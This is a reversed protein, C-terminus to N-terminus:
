RHPTTTASPIIAARHAQLFERMGTPVRQPLARLLTRLDSDRVEMEGKATGRDIGAFLRAMGPSAGCETWAAELQDPPVELADIRVGLVQSALAALAHADLAEEGAISLVRRGEFGDALAAAAAAACDSRAVCTMRGRGPACPLRHSACALPLTALLLEAYFANRLISFGATGEHLLQETAAHDAAIPGPQAAGATAFSTYVVHLVGCRQAAEIANRHQTVRRPPADVTNTSVLLMRSAGEFAADLSAPEDFDAFRVSVGRAALDALRDPHRTTAILPVEPRHLLLLEVAQRALAGSAGSVLLAGGAPISHISNM